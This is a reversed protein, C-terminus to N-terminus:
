ELNVLSELGQIKMIQNDYLDLQVLTTVTTLGEIKKILNNRLCITQFLIKNTKLFYFTTKLWDAKPSCNSTLYLYSHCVTNRRQHNYQPPLPPSPPPPPSGLVLSHTYTHAHMHTHTHKHAHTHMHTHTHRCTHVPAHTCICARAHLLSRTISVAM